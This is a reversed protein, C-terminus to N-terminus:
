HSRAPALTALIGEAVLDADVLYRGAAIAQQLARVRALDIGDELARRLRAATDAWPHAFPPVVLLLALGRPPSACETRLIDPLLSTKM